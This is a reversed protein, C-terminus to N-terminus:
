VCEEYIRDYHMINLYDENKTRNRYIFSAEGTDKKKIGVTLKKRASSINFRPISIIIKRMIIKKLARM